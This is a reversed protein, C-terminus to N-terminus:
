FGNRNAELLQAVTGFQMRQLLNTLKRDMKPIGLHHRLRRMFPAQVVPQNRDLEWPHIYIVAPKGKRALTRFLAKTLFFPYSRLYGGGGFPVKMPGIFGVSLPVEWFDGEVSSVVKKPEVGFDPWGYRDHRVPFVSSSYRFGEELLIPYAWETKKVISFTPARYGLVVTDIINELINKSKRIDKRFEEPTMKTVMTHEYGHSAIEHGADFIKKVLDPNREALWGLVFFTGKVRYSDLIDLLRITPEEVRFAYNEWDKKEIYKSFAEVQFYEEVDVTLVNMVDTPFNNDM